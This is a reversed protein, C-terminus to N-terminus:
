VFSRKENYAIRSVSLNAMPVSSTKVLQPAPSDMQRLFQSDEPLNLMGPNYGGGPIIEIQGQLGIAIEDRKRELISLNM